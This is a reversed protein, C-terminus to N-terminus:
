PEAQGRECASSNGSGYVAQHISGLRFKTDPTNPIQWEMNALGFGKKYIVKGNEAVLATGNFQGNAQYRTLLADIQAAKDQAHVAMATVVLLLVQRTKGRMQGRM